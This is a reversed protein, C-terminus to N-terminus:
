RCDCGRRGNPTMETKKSGSLAWILGGLVVVGGVGIAVMAGTSLGSKSTPAPLTATPATPAPPSIVPPSIVPQTQLQPPTSGGGQAQQGFVNAAQKALQAALAAAQNPDTPLQSPMQFSSTGGGSGAGGGSAPSTDASEIKGLWTKLAGCFQPNPWDAKPIGAGASFAAMAKKTGTGIIGDEVLPGFGLTNLAQQVLKGNSGGGCMPGTTVANSSIAGLGAFQPTVEFGSGPYMGALTAQDM